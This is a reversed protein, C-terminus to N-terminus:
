YSNGILSGIVMGIIDDLINSKSSVYENIHLSPYLRPQSLSHLHSFMLLFAMPSGLSLLYHWSAPVYSILVFLTM